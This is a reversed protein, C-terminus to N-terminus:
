GRTAKQKKLKAIAESNIEAIAAQNEARHEVDNKAWKAPWNGYPPRAHHIDVGLTAAIEELREHPMALAGNLLKLLDILAWKVPETM